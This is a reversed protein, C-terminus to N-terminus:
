GLTISLSGVRDNWGTPMYPQWQPLIGEAYNPGTCNNYDYFRVVYGNVAFNAVWSSTSNNFTGAAFKWCHGPAQYITGVDYGARSGGYNSDTYICMNADPCGHVTSAHAPTALSLTAATIAAAVALAKKIM